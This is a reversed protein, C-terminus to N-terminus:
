AIGPRTGTSTWGVRKPRTSCGTRTPRLFRGGSGARERTAPAVPLRRALLQRRQSGRRSTVGCSRRGTGGGRASAGGARHTAAPWAAYTEADELAIHVVPHDARHETSSGPGEPDGRRGPTGDWLNLHRLDVPGAHACVMSGPQLNEPPACATCSQEGYLRHVDHRAPSPRHEADPLGHPRPHLLSTAITDDGWIVLINPKGDPVVGEKTTSPHVRRGREGPAVGSAEGVQHDPLDAASIISSTLGAGQGEACRVRGPPERM